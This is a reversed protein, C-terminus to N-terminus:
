PHDQDEVVFMHVEYNVEIWTCGPMNRQVKKRERDNLIRV